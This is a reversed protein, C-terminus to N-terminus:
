STEINRHYKSPIEIENLKGIELNIWSRKVRPMSHIVQLSFKTKHIDPWAWFRRCRYDFMTITSISWKDSLFHMFFNPFLELLYFGQSIIVRNKARNLNEGRPFLIIVNRQQENDSNVNELNTKALSTNYFLIFFSISSITKALVKMQQLQFRRM